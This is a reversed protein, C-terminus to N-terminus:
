ESREKSEEVNNRAAMAISRIYGKKGTGPVNRGKTAVQLKPQEVHFRQLCPLYPDMDTCYLATNPNLYELM